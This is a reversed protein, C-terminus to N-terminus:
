IFDKVSDRSIEEGNVVAVADEDTSGLYGGVGALAFSLIVLGLIVKAVPGQAGERFKELM